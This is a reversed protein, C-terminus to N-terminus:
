GFIQGLVCCRGKRRKPTPKSPEAPTQEEVFSDLTMDFIDDPDNLRLRKKMACM